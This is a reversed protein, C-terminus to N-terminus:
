RRLFSFRSCAQCGSPGESQARAVSMLLVQLSEKRSHSLKLHARQHCLLAAHDCWNGSGLCSSLVCSVGEPCMQFLWGDLYVLMRATRPRSGLWGRGPAFDELNCCVGPSLCPPFTVAQTPPSNKTRQKKPTKQNKKKGKWTGWPM